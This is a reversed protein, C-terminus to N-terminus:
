AAELFTQSEEAEIIEPSFWVEGRTTQEFSQIEQPSFFLGLQMDIAFLIEKVLRKAFLAPGRKEAWSKRLSEGQIKLEEETRPRRPTVIGEARKREWTALCAERRKEVVDRPQVKGVNWQNGVNRKALERLFQINKESAPGNTNGILSKSINKRREETHKVGTLTKSIKVKVPEPCPPMKKGKQALSMKQRIEPTPDFFEGGGTSNYGYERGKSKFLAIYLCEAFNLELRSSAMDLVEVTFAAPTYKRIANHFYATSGTETKYCHDFWRKEPTKVTQGVYVKGTVTNTILYIIGFTEEM